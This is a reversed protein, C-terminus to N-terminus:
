PFLRTARLEDVNTDDIPTKSELCHKQLNLCTLDLAKLSMKLVM